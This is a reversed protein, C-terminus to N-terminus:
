WSNVGKIVELLEMGPHRYPDMDAHQWPDVESLNSKNHVNPGGVRQPINTHHLEYPIDRTETAGTKNIRVKATIKPANGRAMEAINRPSYIGSPNKLESKAVDKWYDKKAASWCKLGLPDIWSLPNPAYAYLNEGGLVGIPDPSIYGGGAPDYYRFRNYCLGSESD